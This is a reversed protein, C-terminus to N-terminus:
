ILKAVAQNSYKMGHMGLIGFHLPHSNKLGGHGLLTTVVPIQYKEIFKQFNTFAKSIIVGHGMIILPKKSTQIILEM